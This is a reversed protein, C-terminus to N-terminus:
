EQEETAVEAWTRRNGKVHPADWSVGFNLAQKLMAEIKGGRLNPEDSWRVEHYLFYKAVFHVMRTLPIYAVLLAGLIVALALSGPLAAAPALTVLSAFFARILTFDRDATLHAYLAVGLAVVFFLLNFYDQPSNFKRLESSTLRRLWLGVAGLLTLGCGAYGLIAILIAVVGVLGASAGAASLVAGAVLLLLYGILLYLGFHFPFSWTWLGRNHHYVGKLLLIEQGMEKLENIHDPHRGQKWWDPEEFVSGGYQARGREHAVPYLEWRMHVPTRAYKVARHIVAVLFVLISLYAVIQVSGM